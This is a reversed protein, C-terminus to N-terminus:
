NGLHKDINTNHEEYSKSFYTKGSEDSLYYLYDTDPANVVAQIVAMGPNSIPTPPLGPNTYTNYPSDISIDESTLNKKWWSKEGPQYGLAYQITADIDLKMGIERRNLIVSAVLPRDEDNKAEREVLSAITILEDVTLGKEKAKNKLDQTVKKDFNALFIKVTEKATIDKPILYTDPFMYGIKAEKLFEGEPINLDKTLLLAIEENRWGEIITIRIDTTGHKLSNAVSYLNMSPDLHFDGAQISDALGGFRALLFFAVPSRILKQQSLNKAITRVTEGKKINFVVPKSSMPNLPKIAQNWWFYIGLSIFLLLIILIVFKQRM